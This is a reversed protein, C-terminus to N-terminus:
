VTKAATGVRQILEDRVPIWSSLLESGSRNTSDYPYTKVLSQLGRHFLPRGFATFTFKNYDRFVFLFLATKSTQLFVYIFLNKEM